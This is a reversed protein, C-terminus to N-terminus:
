VGGFANGVRNLGALLARRPDAGAEESVSVVLVSVSVALESVSVALVAVSIVFM